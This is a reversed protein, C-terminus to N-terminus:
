KWKWNYELHYPLNHKQSIDKLATRLNELDTIDRKPIPITNGDKLSIIILSEIESISEIAGGQFKSETDNQQAHIFEEIIEMTTAKYDSTPNLEKSFAKYHSVFRKKEWSPYLVAWLIAMIVLCAALLSNGWLFICGAIVLLLVPVNFHNTNRHKQLRKSQSAKYLMSTVVDDNNIKYHIIM